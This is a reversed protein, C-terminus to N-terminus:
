DCWLIKYEPHCTIENTENCFAYHEWEEESLDCYSRVDKFQSLKKGRICAPRNKQGCDSEGQGVCWWSSDSCTYDLVEVLSYPCQQCTDRGEQQCFKNIKKCPRLFSPPLNKEFPFYEFPGQIKEVKFKQIFLKQDSFSSYEQRLEEVETTGKKIFLDQCSPLNEEKSELTTSSLSLVKEEVYYHCIKKFFTISKPGSEKFEQHIEEAWLQPLNQITKKLALIEEWKKIIKFSSFSPSSIPSFSSSPASRFCRFGLDITRQQQWTFATEESAVLNAFKFSSPHLSSQDWVGWAEAWTEVKHISSTLPFYKSSLFVNIESFFLSDILEVPGGLLEYIGAWSPIKKNWQKKSDIQNQNQCELSDILHCNPLTKQLSYPYSLPVLFQSFSELTSSPIEEFSTSRLLSFFEEAKQIEQPSQFQLAAMLLLDTMLNQHRSQCYSVAEQKKEPIAMESFNKPFPPIDYEPFSFVKFIWFFLNRVLFLDLFITREATHWFWLPFVGAKAVYPLQPLQKEWLPWPLITLFGQEKKQEQLLFSVYPTQFSIKKREEFEVHFNLSFKKAKQTPPTLDYFINYVQAYLPWAKQVFYPNHKWLPPPLKEWQQLEGLQGEKEKLNKLFLGEIDGEQWLKLLLAQAQQQKEEERKLKSLSKLNESKNKTLFNFYHGKYLWIVCILSFFLLIILSLILNQKHKIM